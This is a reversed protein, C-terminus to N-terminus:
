NEFFLAFYPIVASSSATWALIWWLICFFLTSLMFWNEVLTSLGLTALLQGMKLNLQVFCAYAMLLHVALEVVAARMIVVGFLFWATNVFYDVPTSRELLLKIVGHSFFILTCGFWLQLFLLKSFLFLKPHEKKGMTSIINFWTISQKGYKIKAYICYCRLIYVESIVVGCIIHIPSMFPGISSRPLLLFHTDILSYFFGDFIFALCFFYVCILVFVNKFNFDPFSLVIKAFDEFSEGFVLPCFSGVVRKWFSIRNM